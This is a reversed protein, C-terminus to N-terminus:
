TDFFGMQRDARDVRLWMGARGGPTVRVAGRYRLLKGRYTTADVYQLLIGNPNPGAVPPAVEVCGKAEACGETKWFGSGVTVTWGAVGAGPTGEEFDANKLVQGHLAGALACVWLSTHRMLSIM